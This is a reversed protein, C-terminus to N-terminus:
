VRPDIQDLRKAIKKMIKRDLEYQVKLLQDPNNTKYNKWKNMFGIYIEKLEKKDNWNIM